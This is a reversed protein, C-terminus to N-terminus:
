THIYQSIDPVVTDYTMILICSEVPYGLTFRCSRADSLAIFELPVNLYGTHVRGGPSEELSKEPKETCTGLM